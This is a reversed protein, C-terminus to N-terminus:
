TETDARCTFSLDQLLCDTYPMNNFKASHCFAAGDPEHDPLALLFFPRGAQCTNKFPRWNTQAWSSYVQPLSLSIQAQVYEVSAKIPNGNRNLAQILKPTRADLATSFGTAIGRSFVMETGLYIVGVEPQGGTFTWRFANCNVQDDRAYIVETGGPSSGTSFTNWTSGGNTSYEYSVATSNAGFTHGAICTCGVAIATSWTATITHTGSSTPKWRTNIRTDTINEVEFGSEESSAVLTAADQLEDDYHIRGRVQDTGDMVDSM